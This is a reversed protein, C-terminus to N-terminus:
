ETDSEQDHICCLLLPEPLIEGLKLLFSRDLGGLKVSIFACSRHSTLRWCTHAAIPIGLSFTWQTCTGHFHQVSTDSVIWRLMHGLLPLAICAAFLECEVLGGHSIPDALM